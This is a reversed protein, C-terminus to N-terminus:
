RRRRRGLLRVALLPLVYEFGMLGCGGGGGGGGAPVVADMAAQAQFATRTGGSVLQDEDPLVASAGNAVWPNLNLSLEVEDRLGDGDQDQDHAWEGQSIPGEEFVMSAPKIIAFWNRLAGTSNGQQSGGLTVAGTVGTRVYALMPLGTASTGPTIRITDTPVATYGQLWTPLSTARSDFYVYLDATTSSDITVTVLNASADGKDDEATRLLIQGNQNPHGVTLDTAITYSRDVFALSGTSATALSYPRGTSVSTITVTNLQPPFVPPADLEDIERLYEALDAQDSASLLHMGGHANATTNPVRAIVDEITAASGDHFYPATQWVGKLTPTDIGPLTQGLRSGSTPQLTGVNHLSPPYHTLIPDTFIM